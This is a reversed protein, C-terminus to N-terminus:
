YDSIETFLKEFTKIFKELVPKDDLYSLPFSAWTDAAKEPFSIKGISSIDKILQSKAEHNLPYGQFVIETKGNSLVGFLHIQKGDIEM